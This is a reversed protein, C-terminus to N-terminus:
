RTPLFPQTWLVEHEGAQNPNAKMRSSVVKARVYLEDGRLDYRASAGSSKAFVEGVADARAGRRTGVFETEYRVGAESRIRLEVRDGDRSLDDLEVGTTAYFDGSELAAIIAEPTLQRARVMVWGRGPNAERMGYSQYHHADDVAIAFMPERGSTLRETLVRDWIRETSPRTEDGGNNALPHGNYVEFIRDGELAILDDASVIWGYNPHPVHPFMPRGTRSRQELVADINNQLVERVTDGGRPLIAEQINTANVHILTDGFVGNIEEAPIILFRGEEELLVRYEELTKLRVARKGGEIERLGVWDEGFRVIYGTVATESRPDDHIRIWRKGEALTNHDSIALFHYGNRKYWDTIMEPFQDGDSWLSHTHLNGKWWRLEGPESRPNSCGLPLAVAVACLM